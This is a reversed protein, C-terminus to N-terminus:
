LSFVVLAEATIQLLSNLCDISQIFCNWIVLIEMHSPSMFASPCFSKSFLTYPFSQDAVELEGLIYYAWIGNYYLDCM